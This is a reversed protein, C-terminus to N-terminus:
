SDKWSYFEQLTYFANDLLIQKVEKKFKTPCNLSKISNPVSNYLKIGMNTVSKQYQSTNCGLIHCNNKGRPNCDHVQSNTKLNVM